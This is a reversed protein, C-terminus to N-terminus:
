PSKPVTPAPKSAFRQYVALTAEQLRGVTYPHDQPVVPPASLFQETRDAAGQQDGVPVLGQPFVTRLIEGTGGHDYGIVPTGLSLAEITTRGFAEPEGTLSYVIDSLALIERLDDRHGVFTVDNDLKLRSLNRRLEQEFSAKTRHPAGAILGHVRHGRQRLESILDIFDLQGKWRTLRAPLTLLANGSLNPYSAHFNENWAAAPAYGYSFDAREVGRPIVTIRERDIEPYAQIIYDKIFGSIAIVADGSVMIRSYRNLSYPGHVTTIWAPRAAGKLPKLALYALWAPLRSRAHVVDIQNDIMVKRLSSIHSLSGLRKAGVALAIHEAGCADLAAVLRGPSSVVIARHGARTLAQAVEVTGREVGGVDLEPLVQM